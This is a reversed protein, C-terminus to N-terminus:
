SSWYILPKLLPSSHNVENENDHDSSPFFEAIQLTYHTHVTRGLFEYTLYGSYWCSPPVVHVYGPLEHVYDAHGEDCWYSALKQGSQADPVRDVVRAAVVPVLIREDFQWFIVVVSLLLVYYCDFTHTLISKTMMAYIYLYENSKGIKHTAIINGDARYSLPVM